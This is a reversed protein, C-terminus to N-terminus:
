AVAKNNKIWQVLLENRMKRAYELAHEDHVFYVPESQKWLFKDNEYVIIAPKYGHRGLISTVKIKTISM